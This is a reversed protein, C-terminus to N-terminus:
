GLPSALGMTKQQATNLPDLVQIQIKPGVPDYGIQLTSFHSFYMFEYVITSYNEHILVYTM